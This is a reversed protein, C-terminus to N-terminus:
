RQYIGYRSLEYKLLFKIYLKRISLQTMIKYKNNIINQCMWGSIPIFSANKEIQVPYLVKYKGMVINSYDKEGEAVDIQMAEYDDGYLADEELDYEELISKEAMKEMIISDTKLVLIILRRKM